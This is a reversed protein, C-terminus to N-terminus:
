LLACYKDVSERSPFTLLTAINTEITYGRLGVSICARLNTVCATERDAYRCM